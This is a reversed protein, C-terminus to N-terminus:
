GASQELRHLLLKLPCHQPGCSIHRNQRHKSGTSLHPSVTSFNLSVRAIWCTDSFVNPKGADATRPSFRRSGQSVASLPLRMSPCFCSGHRTVPPGQPLSIDRSEPPVTQSSSSSDFPLLLVLRLALLSQSSSSPPPGFRSPNRRFFLVICATWFSCALSSLLIDSSQVTKQRRSPALTSKAVFLRQHTTKQSLVCREQIEMAIPIRVLPPSKLPIRFFNLIGIGGVEAM